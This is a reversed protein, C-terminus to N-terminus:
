NEDQYLMVKYGAKLHVKVTRMKKAIYQSTGQILGKGLDSALQAGADTSINISSGLSGGMNAAVEKVADLEMSNPIFIGPQGDTDYVSLEVPIVTGEYELSTITIGLREGQIRAAGVLAANRPIIRDAVAMPELLRLKVAQGDTVSQAGNICASLTNKESVATGGVATNFGYNRETTHTAVFEANGTPQGLASVVQHTVQKVPMAKNKGAKRVSRAEVTPNNQGGMYKAALEYSKEMLAVEDMDSNRGKENELATELSAIRELLEDMEKDENAPQEYFNGLTTNLDRYATASSRITQPTSVKAPEPETETEEVEHDFMDGLEQMSRSRSARREEMEKQAYAKVKDGIIHRDEQDADPIETNYGGIGPQKEKDSSPAFILWMAGLFVLVMAPLVIMKQRKLREAPTLPTREKKPKEKPPAAKSETKTEIKQQEM